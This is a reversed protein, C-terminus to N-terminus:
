KKKWRRHGTPSIRSSYFNSVWCSVGEPGRETALLFLYGAWTFTLMSQGWFVRFLKNKHFVFLLFHNSMECVRALSSCASPTLTYTIYTISSPFLLLFSFYIKWRDYTLVPHRSGRRDEKTGSIWGMGRWRERSLFSLSRFAFSFPWTELSCILALHGVM